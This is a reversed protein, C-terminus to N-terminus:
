RGTEKKQYNEYFFTRFSQMAEHFAKAHIKRAILKGALEDLNNEFELDYISIM